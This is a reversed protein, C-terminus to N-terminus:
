KNAANLVKQVKKHLEALTGDNVIIYGNPDEEIRKKIEIMGQESPHMDNLLKAEAEPREVYISITEKGFRDSLHELENLFRCDTVSITDRKEFKVGKHKKALFNKQFAANIHWDKFVRDRIFDTGIIQLLQRPTTMVQGELGSISANDINYFCGDIEPNLFSPLAKKLERLNKRSLTIPEKLALEKLDADYLLNRHLGFVEGVVTKLPDAFSLIAKVQKRKKLEAAVTDKGCGKPGTVNILNM